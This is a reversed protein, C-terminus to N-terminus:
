SQTYNLRTSMGNINHWLIPRQMAHIGRSGAANCKAVNVGTNHGTNRVTTNGSNPSCKISDGMTIQFVLYYTAISDESAARTEKLSAM